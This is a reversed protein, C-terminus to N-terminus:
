NNELTEIRAELSEIKAVAEQLAATLVPVLKAQDIGQYEPNGDADVADKEGTVAEPVYPQVEHALFGDVTKDPEAIFNFRHVPLNKLRTIGDSLDTVNEKLRYDSSTNFSTSTADVDIRGVTAGDKQCLIISGDGGRRNFHSTGNSRSTRISGDALIVTGSQNDTTVNFNTTAVMLNGSSDIRAAESGNLNFRLDLNNSFANNTVADLTVRKDSQNTRGLSIRSIAGAGGGAAPNTIRLEPGLGTDNNKNIDLDSNPNDTGIGLREASADWFFKPTTGTDEYFSINGNNDVNLREKLSTFLAIKSSRTDETRASIGLGGFNDFFGTGQGDTTFILPARSATPLSNINTEFDLSRFEAEQFLSFQATPSSTGIGVRSNASDVFLTGSDVDLIGSVTASPTVLGNPFGPSGTGAEDTINDVRIESM